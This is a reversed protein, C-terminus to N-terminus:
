VLSEELVKNDKKGSEGEIVLSVKLAKRVRRVMQVKPVPIVKLVKVDKPGEKGPFVKLDGKVV